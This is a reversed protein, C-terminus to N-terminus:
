DRGKTYGDSTHNVGHTGGSMKTGYGQENKDKEGHMSRTGGGRYASM